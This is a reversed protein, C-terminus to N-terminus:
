TRRPSLRRRLMRVRSGVRRDMEDVLLSTGAGLVRLREWGSRPMLTARLRDSGPLALAMCRVVSDVDRRLMDQDIATPAYRAREVARALRGLAARADDDLWKHLSAERQRPTVSAPWEAGLDSVRDGLEAWAVEARARPERAGRWRRFAILRRAILPTAALLLLFAAFAVWRWPLNALVREPLSGQESIVDPVVGADPQLGPNSAGPTPVVPETSSLPDPEEVPPQTWDPLGPVRTSTTPEFRMWGAGEFYLEPWAHADALSIEYVGDQDPRGPLFGVAVRAPIGLTRAMVAMASSFQVCYGIRQELFAAVADSGGDEPADLSYRFDGDTRFFRQLAVAQEYDTGDGAVARATEAVIEPLGDPLATYREVLEGPAPGAQALVEPDPDVDLHFVTYERNRTREGDGIVNLTDAEYLWDGDIDVQTAPYPMPLYTQNLDGIQIETREQTVATADDLGPPPPMGETPKQDRPVTGTTPSWNSGDFQDATVIRLPEPNAETTTFRIVAEDSRNGLDERLNLIPNVVRIEGGGPGSGFSGIGGSFLQQDLGPIVAPVLVAAVVSLAGVRRGISALATPEGDRSGNTGLVRGWRRVRDGGDSAVLGLYGAGALGFWIWGTTEPALAAPVCYAALLPLGAVAPRRLSVALLDVAVAVLGVGGALLLLMGSLPEVPPAHDRTAQAGESLLSAFRDLADPGPLLGFVAQGGTFMWTLVLALAALQGGLVLLLQSTAARVAMGALVVALVAIVSRVYWGWGDVLPNLTLAALATALGAVLGVRAHRSM